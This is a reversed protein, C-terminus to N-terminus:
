FTLSMYGPQVIVRKAGPAVIADVINYVYLTILATTCVTTATGWAAQRRALQKHLVNSTTQRMLAVTNQRMCETYIVGGALVATGGLIFGGKLHDGKYMQGWGPVVMSRWLGNSDYKDTLYFEDFAPTSGPQSVAYLSFYEYRLGVGPIRVQRWYSDIKRCSFAEVSTNTTFSLEITSSYEANSNVNRDIVGNIHHQSQLYNGLSVLESGQLLNLSEGEDRVLQFAYTGNFRKLQGSNNVWQPTLRESSSVLRQASVSFPNLLIISICLFTFLRM